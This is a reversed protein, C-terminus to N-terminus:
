SDKNPAFRCIITSVPCSQTMSTVFLSCVYVGFFAELLSFQVPIFDLQVERRGTRSSSGHPSVHLFLTLGFKWKGVFAFWLVGFSALAFVDFIPFALNRVRGVQM